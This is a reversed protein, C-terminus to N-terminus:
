HVPSTNGQVGSEIGTARMQGVRETNLDSVGSDSLCAKCVGGDEEECEDTEEQESINNHPGLNESQYSSKEISM